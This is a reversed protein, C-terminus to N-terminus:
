EQAAGSPSDPFESRLRDEVSTIMENLEIETERLADAQYVCQIIQVTGQPNGFKAVLARAAEVAEVDAQTLRTEADILSNKVNLLNSQLKNLVIELTAKTSQPASM